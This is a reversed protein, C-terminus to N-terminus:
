KTKKLQRQIEKIQETHKKTRENLKEINSWLVRLDETEPIQIM